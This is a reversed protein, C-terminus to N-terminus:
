SYSSTGRTGARDRTGNQPGAQTQNPPDPETPHLPIAEVSSGRRHSSGGSTLEDFKTEMVVRLAQLQTVLDTSRSNTDSLTTVLSSIKKDQDKLLTVSSSQTSKSESAEKLIREVSKKMRQLEAMIAKNTFDDKVVGAKRDLSLSKKIPGLRVFGKAVTLSPSLIASASTSVNKDVLNEYVYQEPGTYSLPDKAEMYITFWVYHWM